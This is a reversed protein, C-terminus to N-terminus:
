FSRPRQLKTRFCRVHLRNSAEHDFKLANLLQREFFRNTVKIKISDDNNVFFLIFKIQIAKVEVFEYQINNITRFFTRQCMEIGVKEYKSSM